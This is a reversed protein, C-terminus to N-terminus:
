QCVNGMGKENSWKNMADKYFKCHEQQVIEQRRQEREFAIPMLKVMCFIALFFAAAGIWDQKAM